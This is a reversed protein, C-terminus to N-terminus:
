RDKKVSASETSVTIEYLQDKIINGRLSNIYKKVVEFVAIDDPKDKNPLYVWRKFNWEYANSLIYVKQDPYEDYSSVAIYLYEKPCRTLKPECEGSERIKLIRVSTPYEEHKAILEFTNLIHVLNRDQSDIIKLEEANAVGCM